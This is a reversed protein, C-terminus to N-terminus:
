AVGPQGYSILHPKKDNYCISLIKEQCLRIERDETELDKAGNHTWTHDGYVMGSKPIIKEWQDSPEHKSNNWNNGGPNVYFTAIMNRKLLEPIAVQYASHLSDDFMLLFVATKNDKWTAVQSDGIAGQASFAPFSSVAGALMVYLFVNIKM